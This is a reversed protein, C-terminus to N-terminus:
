GGLEYKPSRILGGCLRNILDQLVVDLRNAALGSDIANLCALYMGVPM